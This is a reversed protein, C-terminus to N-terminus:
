SAQLCPPKDQKIYGEIMVDGDFQRVTIDSVPISQAMLEPGAGRCMPVGDDGGLIKPAYFFCVKDVIGSQLASASVTAGGEILLSTLGMQGLRHMLSPLDIRGDKLDAIIVKAGSMEIRKRKPSAASNGTVIITDATSPIRLVNADEPISLNTDLIIRVPDIATKVELRATLRPNDATVTNIGVMIADMRHRLEHVYNRAAPGTIWKSDFTRTAIRGDLTAACKLTVFPRKTRIYKIFIENLRRAQDECIGTEVTIGNRILFDAGGGKVDPNPDAMAMVVHRIGASLIKQTCPPTRGFHNCPELTVFLTADRAREGADDIAYVEAHPGGAKQHWGQGVIAGDKVVVAGVMPNPSTYGAGRAALELATEMFYQHNM